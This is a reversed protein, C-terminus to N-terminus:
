TRARRRRDEITRRLYEERVSELYALVPEQRLDPYTWPLPRFAGAHFALSAEEYIGDGRYIRHARDKTTALVLRSDTILGPDINFPRRIPWARRAALAVEIANTARKVAALGDQAVLDRFVFFARRLGRGMERAYTRTDPFPFLPGPGDVPGVREGLAARVEDLYEPLGTIVAAFLAARVPPRVTGM